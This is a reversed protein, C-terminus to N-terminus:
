CIFRWRWHSTLLIQISILINFFSIFVCVYWLEATDWMDQRIRNLSTHFTDLKYSQYKPNSVWILKASTGPKISGSKDRFSYAPCSQERRNAKGADYLIKFSFSKTSQLCNVSIVTSQLHTFVSFTVPAHHVSAIAFRQWLYGKKSLLRVIRELLLIVFQVYQLLFVIDQWLWIM